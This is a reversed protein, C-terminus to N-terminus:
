VAPGDMKEFAHRVGNWVGKRGFWVFEKRQENLRDGRGGGCPGLSADWDFESELQILRGRGAWHGASIVSDIGVTM